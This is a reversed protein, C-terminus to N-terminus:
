KADQSFTDLILKEFKEMYKDLTFLKVRDRGAQGMKKRLSENELLFVIKGALGSIDKPAVLFGNEGDEVFAPIDGFACAVEPNGM